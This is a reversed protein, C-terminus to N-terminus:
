ATIAANSIGWIRVASKPNYLVISNNWELRSRSAPKAQLKGLDTIRPPGSQIGALRGDGISLVYISTGTTGTGPCLENFDLILDNNNDKDFIMIPLGNYFTVQRGFADIGQTLNGAVGVTRSAVSLKRRMVLSMAIHTPNLCTDIAEDLLALSLPDGGATAASDNILYEGTIRKQIGNFERPETAQNGKIFMRSWALALAVLKEQEQTTRLGEGGTELLFTDVDLEGGSIILGETVPESTGTSETFAENIGRTGVDPLRDSRSFKIASGVINDFPFVRTIDSGMAYMIIYGAAIPDTLIMRKAAEILTLSM